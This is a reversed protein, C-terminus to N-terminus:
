ESAKQKLKRELVKKELPIVETSSAHYIWATDAARKAQASAEKFKFRVIFAGVKLENTEYSPPWLKGMIGSLGSALCHTARGSFGGMVMELRGLLAHYVYFVLAVDENMSSPCCTWGNSTEFYVGPQVSEKSRALQLGGHCSPPQVDDDRYRLFFPCSRDALRRVGDQSVFPVAHFAEAIVAESVGNSKVSGLCILGRDEVRNRFAGYVSDAQEKIEELGVEGAFASVLRQELFEPHNENGLGFLEHLLIGQLNTDSAMVWRQHPRRGTRGSDSDDEEDGPTEGSHSKRKETWMGVCLEVFKRDAVLMSFREPEIQFLKGPLDARAIHHQEILYQCLAALTEMSVYKAKNNFVAAVQHRELGTAKSIRKIVGRELGHYQELLEKLRFSIKM